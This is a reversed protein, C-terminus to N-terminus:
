RRDFLRSRPDPMDVNRGFYVSDRAGEQNALGVVLALGLPCHGEFNNADSFPSVIKSCFFTSTGFDQDCVAVFM